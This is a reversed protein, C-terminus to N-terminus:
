FIRRSEWSLLQTAISIRFFIKSFSQSNEFYFKGSYLIDLDWTVIYINSLVQGASAYLIYLTTLSVETINVSTKCSTEFFPM